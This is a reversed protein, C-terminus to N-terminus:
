LVIGVARVPSGDGEFIKLPFCSFYFGTEPLQELNTLNEVILCNNPLLKKHNEFDPSEASDASIFDLGVAKIEHKILMDVTEETFTPYGSFYKKEGWYKDWGTYFLAFDSEKLKEEDLQEPTIFGTEVSSRCDFKVGKGFFQELPVTDTTQNSNIMHKPCDLHTGTHTLLTLLKEAFGNKEITFAEEISADKTGPFVPMGTKMVHTLDIIKV